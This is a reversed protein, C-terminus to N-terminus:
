NIVIDSIPEDLTAWCYTALELVLHDHSGPGAWRHFAEDDTFGGMADRGDLGRIVAMEVPIPQGFRWLLPRHRTGVIVRAAILAKGLRVFGDNSPADEFEIM